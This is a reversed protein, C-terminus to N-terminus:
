PAETIIEARFSEPTHIMSRPTLQKRDYLYVGGATNLQGTLKSGEFDLRAPRLLTREPM